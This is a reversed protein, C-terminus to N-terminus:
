DDIEIIDYSLTSSNYMREEKRISIAFVESWDDSHKIIYDEFYELDAKWKEVAMAHTRMYKKQAIFTSLYNAITYGPLIKNNFLYRLIARRQEETLPNKSQVNYGYEKLVSEANMNQYCVRLNGVNNIYDIETIVRCMIVYKKKVKNYVHDSIFFYRCQECYACNVRIETIEGDETLVPLIGTIDILNHGDHYCKFISTRVLFDAAKIKFEEKPLQKRKEEAKKYKEYYNHSIHKQILSDLIIMDIQLGKMEKQFNRYSLKGSGISGDVKRKYSYIDGDKRCHYQVYKEEIREHWILRGVSTLRILDPVSRIEKPIYEMLESEKNKLPIKGGRDKFEKKLAIGAPSDKKIYRHGFEGTQHNYVRVSIEDGIEMYRNYGSEDYLYYYYTTKKRNEEKKYEKCKWVVTGGPLLKEMFYYEKELVLPESNNKLDAKGIPKRLNTVITNFLCSYIGKRSIETLVFEPHDTPIECSLIVYFSYPVKEERRLHFADAEHLIWIRNKWIGYYSGKPVPINYFRASGDSQNFKKIEEKKIVNDM